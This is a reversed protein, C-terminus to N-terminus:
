TQHTLIIKCKLEARKSLLKRKKEEAEQVAKLDEESM